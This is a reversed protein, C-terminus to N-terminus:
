FHQKKVDWPWRQLVSGEVDIQCVAEFVEICVCQSVVLFDALEALMDCFQALLDKRSHLSYSVEVKALVTMRGDLAWALYSITVFM